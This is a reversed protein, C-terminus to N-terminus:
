CMGRAIEVLSSETFTGKHPVIAFSFEHKGQDQHSDPATSSRLLSLRMVSGCVAYGYKSNNVIGVGYGYESLDAFRHGCVEFKAADWSTNRHTPRAINSSLLIIVILVNTNSYLYIYKM